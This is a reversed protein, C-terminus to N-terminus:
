KLCCSGTLIKKRSNEHLFFPEDFIQSTESNREFGLSRYLGPNSEDTDLVLVSYDLGVLAKAMLTVTTSKGVGGKGCVPSKKPRGM